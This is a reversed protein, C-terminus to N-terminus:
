VAVKIVVKHLMGEGILPMHADAPFFLAFAGPATAIWAAPDDGYLIVDKSENYPTDIQQCDPTSRWGMTDMGGVVYQIDIYRRHAELHTESPKRGPKRQVLAYVREGDIEYRGDVLEALDARKLFAFAAPFGPHLPLYREAQNLQDYIM